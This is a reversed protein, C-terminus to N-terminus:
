FFHVFRKGLTRRGGQSGGPLAEPEEDAAALAIAGFLLSQALLVLFAGLVASPTLRDDQGRISVTLYVVTSVTVLLWISLSKLQLKPPKGAVVKALAPSIAVTAWIFLPVFVGYYIIGFGLVRGTAYFDGKPSGAFVGALAKVLFPGATIGAIVFVGFAGLAAIYVVVARTLGRASPKRALIMSLFLWVILVRLILVPIAQIPWISGQFLRLWTFADVPPPAFMGALESARPARSGASEILFQVLAGAMVLAVIQPRKLQIWFSRKLLGLTTNGRALALNAGAEAGM